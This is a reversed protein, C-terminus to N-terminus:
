VRELLKHAAFLTLVVACAIFINVRFLTTRGLWAILLFFSTMGAGFIFVKLRHKTVTEIQFSHKLIMTTITFALIIIIGISIVNGLSISILFDHPKGTIIHYFLLITENSIVINIMGLISLCWCVTDFFDIARQRLTEPPLSSIVNDCFERYDEGIVERINEGRHQASLIMETLDQRVLEQHYSSINAARLYCIMNTFAEQNEARIQKDLANNSQNLERTKQNM